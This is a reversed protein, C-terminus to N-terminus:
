PKPELNLNLPDQKAVSTFKCIDCVTIEQRLLSALSNKSILGIFNKNGENDLTYVKYSRGTNSPMVLGTVYFTGPM